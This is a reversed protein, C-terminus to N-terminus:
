NSEKRPELPRLCKEGAFNCRFFENILLKLWWSLSMSISRWIRQTTESECEGVIMLFAAAVAAVLFFLLNNKDLFFVLPLLFSVM